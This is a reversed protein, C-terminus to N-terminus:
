SGWCRRARSVGPHLFEVVLLIMGVFFFLFALDPTLLGHLISAGVGM